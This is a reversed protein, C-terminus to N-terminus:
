NGVDSVWPMSWISLLILFFWLWPYRNCLCSRLIIKSIKDRTEGKLCRLSKFEQCGFAKGSITPNVGRFSWGM